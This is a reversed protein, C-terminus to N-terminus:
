NQTRASKHQTTVVAACMCLGGAGTKAPPIAGLAVAICGRRRLVALRRHVSYRVIYSWGHLDHRLLHASALLLPPPPSHTDTSYAYYCPSFPPLLSPPTHCKRFHPPGLPLLALFVGHHKKPPDPGRKLFVPSPWHCPSSTSLVQCPVCAVFVACGVAVRCLGLCLAQAHKPSASDSHPSCKNAKPEKKINMRAKQKKSSQRERKRRLMSGKTKRTM